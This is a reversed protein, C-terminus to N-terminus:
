ALHPLMQRESTRFCYLRQLTDDESATYGRFRAAESTS